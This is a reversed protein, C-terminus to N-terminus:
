LKFLDDLPNRKPADSTLTVREGAFEEEINDRFFSWPSASQSLRLWLSEGVGAYDLTKGDTFSIRLVRRSRDYGAAKLKGSNLTQMDM